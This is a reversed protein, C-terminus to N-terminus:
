SIAALDRPDHGMDALVARLRRRCYSLDTGIIKNDADPRGLFPGMERPKKQTGALWLLQRCRRSLQRIADRAISVAERGTVRVDSAKDSSTPLPLLPGDDSGRPQDISVHKGRERTRRRLVDLARNEVVRALWAAFSVGRDEYSRLRAGDNELCHLKTMSNVNEREHPDLSRFAYPPRLLVLADLYESFEKQAQEPHTDLMGLFAPVRETLDIDKARRPKM